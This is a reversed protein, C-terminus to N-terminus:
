RTITDLHTFLERAQSYSLINQRDRLYPILQELRLCPIGKAKDGKIEGLFVLVPFIYQGGLQERLTYVQRWVQTTIKSAEKSGHSYLGKPTALVTGSYNKAEIIFVGKAGVVLHDINEKGISLDHWVRWGEPLQRLMRGVKREGEMGKSYSEFDRQSGFFM